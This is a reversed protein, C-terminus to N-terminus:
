FIIAKSEILAGIALLVVAWAIMKAIDRLIGAFRSSFNGKVLATSLVGGALAGISYSVLEFSGHPLLGLIGMGVGGALSYGTQHLVYQKAFNGLFIGVVSANWVIIFISGAGYVVSFAIILFLVWLNHMFIFEFTPAFNTSVAMGTSKEVLSVVKGGLSGGLTTGIARIGKLENIQLSFLEESQAPPLALYWFTFGIILGLFLALLVILTSFHKALTRSGLVKDHEFEEEDSQFLSLAFPLAPIVTFMILIMSKPEIELVTSTLWVSVTVFLFGLLIIFAPNREAKLPSVLAELVM